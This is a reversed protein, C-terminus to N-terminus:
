EYLDDSQFNVEGNIRLGKEDEQILRKEILGDVLKNFEEWTPREDVEETYIDM